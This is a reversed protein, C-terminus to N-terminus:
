IDMEKKAHKKLMIKSVLGKNTDIYDEVNKCGKFPSTVCGYGGAAVVSGGILKKTNIDGM